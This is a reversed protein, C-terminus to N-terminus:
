QEASGAEDVLGRDRAHLGSAARQARSVGLQKRVDRALAHAQGRDGLLEPDRLLRDAREDVIELSFTDDFPDVIGLVRAGLADAPRRSALAREDVAQAEEGLELALERL